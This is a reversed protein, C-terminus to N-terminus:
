CRPSSWYYGQDLIMSGLSFDATVGLWGTRMRERSCVWRRLGSSPPCPRGERRRGPSLRGARGGGRRGVSREWEACGQGRGSWEGPVEGQQPRRASARGQGLSRGETLDATKQPGRRQKAMGRSRCRGRREVMQGGRLKGEGEGSGMKHEPRSSSWDSGIRGHFGEQLRAEETGYRPTM